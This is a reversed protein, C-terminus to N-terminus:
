LEEKKLTQQQALNAPRAVATLATLLSAPHSPHVDQGLEWIMVGGCGLDRAMKTKVAITQPGNYYMTGHQDEAPSAPHLDRVIEAYTKPEGTRTDRGYFPVGVAVKSLPIQSSQAISDIAEKAFKPTSHRGRADYAMVLFLDVAEVVSPPIIREQGPYIAMTLVRGSPKFAAHLEHLLAFLGLWEDRTSPYEHNLDVGDLDHKDLLEVISRVLAKRLAPTTEVQPFAGSRGNGGLCVMLKAGSARTAARAAALVDPSPLRDLATLSGDPAVELSFLIAHTVHPAVAQWDVAGYRYEPVYGVVAFGKALGPLLLLLLLAVLLTAVRKM